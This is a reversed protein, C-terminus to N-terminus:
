ELMPGSEYDEIREDGYDNEHWKMMTEAIEKIREKTLVNRETEGPDQHRARESFEKSRYKLWFIIYTAVNDRIGQIVKSTAMDSILGVGMETSEEIKKAFEGDDKIWRYYTSPDIKVRFCASMIVPNTKFEEILKQKIKNQRNEITIARSKTPNKESKNKNNM